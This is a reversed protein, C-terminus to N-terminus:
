AATYTSAEYKFKFKTLFEQQKRVYLKENRKYLVGQVGPMELLRLEVNGIVEVEKGNTNATYKGTVIPAM